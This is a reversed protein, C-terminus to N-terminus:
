RHHFTKLDYATLHRVLQRLIWSLYNIWEEATWIRQRELLEVFRLVKAAFDTYPSLSVEHFLERMWFSFRSAAKGVNSARSGLLDIAITQQDNSEARLAFELLKIEEGHALPQNSIRRLFDGISRSPGSNESGKTHIYFLQGFAFAPLPNELSTLP